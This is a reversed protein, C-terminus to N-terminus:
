RKEHIRYGLGDGDLLRHRDRRLRSRGAIRQVGIGGFRHDAGGEDLVKNGRGRIEGLDHIQRWACEAEIWVSDAETLTFNVEAPELVALEGHGEVTNGEFVGVGRCVM